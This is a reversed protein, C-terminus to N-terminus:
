RIEIGREAAAIIANNDFTTSSMKEPVIRQITVGNPCSIERLVGALSEYCDRSHTTAFVQTNLQTSGNLVMRWMDKMVSYHLGTDIEDILVVGNKANALGLAIGLMRWMGDGLSGIPVRQAVNKLKVYIGSPGEFPSPSRHIGASAMRVIKPEIIRLAETVHEEYDSLVIEGFLRAVDPASMGNTQIFQVPPDLETRKRFSHRRLKAFGDATMAMTIEEHGFSWKLSLILDDEADIYDRNDRGLEFNKAERVNIKLENDLGSFLTDDVRKAVVSIQRELDRDFFLHNVNVLPLNDKNREYDWEGRRKLISSFVGINNTSCHLEICELISTKGSNNTGVLLNVHGLRNLNFASFGRFNNIKLSSYM